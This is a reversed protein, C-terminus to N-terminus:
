VRNKIEKKIFKKMSLYNTGFIPKVTHNKPEIVAQLDILRKSVIIGRKPHAIDVIDGLNCDTGIAPSSDPLTDCDLLEIMRSNELADVGDQYLNGTEASTGYVASEIYSSGVSLTTTTWTQADSSVSHKLSLGSGDEAYVRFNSGDYIVNIRDYGTGYLGSVLVSTWDIANSSILAEGFDSIAVFLGNGFTISLPIGDIAPPTIKNWSAGGDITSVILANGNQLSASKYEKGVAVYISGVSVFSRIDGLIEPSFGFSKTTYTIGDESETYDLTINDGPQYAPFRMYRSGALYPITRPTTGDDLVLQASSPDYGIYLYNHGSPDRTGFIL